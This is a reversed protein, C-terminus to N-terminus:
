VAVTANLAMLIFLPIGAISVALIFSIFPSDILKSIFEILYDVTM